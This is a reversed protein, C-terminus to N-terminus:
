GHPNTPRARKPMAHAGQDLGAVGSTRGAFGRYRYALSILMGDAAAAPARLGRASGPLRSLTTGLHEPTGLDSWGCGGVPVVQLAGPPAEHIIEHSFDVHPLREYLQELRATRGREVGLANRMANVVHPVAQEYVRLLTSARAAIIFANWMAGRAILERAQSSSPKEIFDLVPCTGTADPPGSMIYGLDPDPVQAPMGLLVVHEPVQGVHELACSMANALVREDEIYHDAPLMLVEAAADHRLVHMLQLLIGNGTGCNRPQVVVHPVLREPLARRWWRTHQGSVIVSIRRHYVVTAARRITEDLLSPGGLLSCYQKPVPIGTADTTLDSLRHGDGGALIMAWAHKFKHM